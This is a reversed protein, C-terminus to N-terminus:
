TLRADQVVVFQSALSYVISMNSISYISYIERPGYPMTPAMFILKNTAWDPASAFISPFHRQDSACSMITLAPCHSLICSSTQNIFDENCPCPGAGQEWNENSVCTKCRSDAIQLRAPTRDTPCFTKETQRAYIMSGAVPSVDLLWYLQGPQGAPRWFGFSTQNATANNPLHLLTHQVPSESELETKRPSNYGATSSDAPAQAENTCELLSALQATHATNDTSQQNAM